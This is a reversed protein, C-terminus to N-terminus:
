SKPPSSSTPAPKNKPSPKSKSASPPASKLQWDEPPEKQQQAMGPLGVLVIAGVVIVGLAWRGVTFVERM